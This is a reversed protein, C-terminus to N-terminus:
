LRIIVSNAESAASRRQIEEISATLVEIRSFKEVAHLLLLFVGGVLPVSFWSEKTIGWAFATGALICGDLIVLRRLCNVKNVLVFLPSQFQIERKFKEDLACCAISVKDCTSFSVSSSSM